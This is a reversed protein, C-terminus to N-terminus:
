RDGGDAHPASEAGVDGDAGLASQGGGLIRFGGAESRAMLEHQPFPIKIGERDFGAKVAKIVAQIARWRRRATPRDIWFRVEFLIASDGFGTAIVQPSPVTLIEDLDGIAERIVESATDLDTEYDVGVEVRLRLRGKRSRNVITEASIVDNPVVIYEGDFTQIRTNFATIDTVIGEHGGVAIWDGVEFPKGFMLVFGSLVAALTQRAALGLIIGLFGAGILLGSLDVNWIGLVIVGALLYLTIQTLRYTVERHHKTFSEQSTVFEDLVRRIFGLVLFTGGFIGITVIAGALTDYGVGAGDLVGALRGAQGWLGALLALGALVVLAVIASILLGFVPAYYRDSERFGTRVRNALYVIAVIAGAVVLTAVLREPLSGIQSALADLGESLGIM